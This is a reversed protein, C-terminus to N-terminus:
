RLLHENDQWFSDAILSINDSLITEGDQGRWLVTGKRFLQPENNYNTNFMSFLLENKDASTSGRLRAQAEACTWGLELVLKWFATNYLNNIHCDAQRWKLYDMMTADNPYLVARGDFCPPRKLTCDPFFNPWNFVYASTFLSTLISIIKSMRRNWMNTRKWFVFSYEDSQGYAIRIDKHNSMVHKAAASMLNLARADNPKSFNHEASFGKFGCGDLRVVIWTDLLCTDLHEFKWTPRNELRFWENIKFGSITCLNEMPIVIGGLFTNEKLIDHHWVTIELAKTVLQSSLCRYIFMENFTPDRTGRVIRTKKKSWRRRDPRLYCKVYTDPLHSGNILSQYYLSMMRDFSVDILKYVLNRAHNIFVELMGQCFAVQVKIEGSVTSQNMPKTGQVTKSMIDAREDRFIPHFFTYVLDSHAVEEAHMFLSRLFFRIELQRRLAVVRVNSRLSRGRPLSHVKVLPFRYYVAELLELFENYSRYLYSPVKVNERDVRLKYMYIKEPTHWKECGVIEVSKIVGDTQMTYVRPVFTLVQQSPTSISRRGSQVVAHVLFNLKPFKSRLTEEIMRTFRVSAESDTCELWLNGRMYAISEPTLGPVDAYLMLKMLNLFLTSHKRIVNLAHCCLDVLEHFYSSSSSESSNIAYLMEDTLLFPVRDRKFSGFMQADGLYKGFDIHFLHGRPTIMVNDNHRDGVGLVYTGVSWGACSCRFNKLAKLNCDCGILPCAFKRLWVIHYELESPNQKQLWRQISDGRLVGTVGGDETQIERLTKAGRVIEILGKRAQLPIIRYVIMRLDIGDTLWLRDMLRIMQLVLFDQRLDDGAQFIQRASLYSKSAVLFRNPEIPGGIGEPFYFRYSDRHTMVIVQRAMKRDDKAERKVLAGACELKTVLQNQLEAESRFKEGLLAVLVMQLLYCRTGRDLLRIRRELEWYLAFAFRRSQLAYSLLQEALASHESKEFWLAEVLQPLLDVMSDVDSRSLWQVAKERVRIDPFNPLLLEIALPAPLSTWVNLLSYLNTLCAWDWCIASSLVLPLAEPMATLYVRKEWVFDKEDADLERFGRNEIIDELLMQSDPPLQHFDMPEVNDDSAQLAPFKLRYNKTPFTVVCIPGQRSRFSPAPPLWPRVRSGEYFPVFRAGEVLLGDSAFLCLLSFCLQEEVLRDDSSQCQSQAGDPQCPEMREGCLVLCLQVERPLASVPLPFSILSDFLLYDYFNHQAVGCSTRISPGVERLGHILHCKISFRMYKTTWAQPIGHLSEITLTFNEEMDVIDKTERSDDAEKQCVVTFDADSSQCYVACMHTVSAVVSSVSSTLERFLGCDHSLKSDSTPESCGCNVHRSESMSKCAAQLSKVSRVLWVPEVQLLACLAMISQSVSRSSFQSNKARQLLKELEAALTTLVVQVDDRKVSSCHVYHRLKSTWEPFPEAKPLSVLELEPDQGLKICEHVFAYNCLSTFPAIYEDSNFLKLAYQGIPLPEQQIGVSCLVCGIIQEVSSAIDCTFVVPSPKGLKTHVTMKLSNVTPQYGSLREGIVLQDFVTCDQRLAVVRSGLETAQQLWVPTRDIIKFSSDCTFPIVPRPVHGKSEQEADLSTSAVLLHVTSSDQGLSSDAKILPDFESLFGLDSSSEDRVSIQPAPVSGERRPHPALLTVNEFSISRGLPLRTPVDYNEFCTVARSLASTKSHNWNSPTEPLARPQVLHGYQPLPELRCSAFYSSPFVTFPVRSQFAPTAQNSAALLRKIEIIKQERALIAPDVWSILDDDNVQEKDGISMPHESRREAAQITLVFDPGYLPFFPHEPIDELLPKGVVTSLLQAWCKAFNVPRYGGGGLLLCPLNLALIRQLSVCYSTPTLNFAQNPDGTLGDVGLQVVIAHPDFNIKLRPLINDFIEIFQEDNLGRRLPVNVAYNKGRGVGFDTLDGSCPYFGPEQLHLSVTM